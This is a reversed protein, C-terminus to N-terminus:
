FAGVVAAGNATPVVTVRREPAGTFWLVAAGITVAGTVGFLVNATIARRHGSRILENARAANGECALM